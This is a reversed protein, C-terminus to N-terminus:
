KRFCSLKPKYQHGPKPNVSRFPVVKTLPLFKAFLVWKLCNMRVGLDGFTKARAKTWVDLAAKLSGYFASNATTRQSAVSSVNIVCGKTKALHPLALQSLQVVSDFM